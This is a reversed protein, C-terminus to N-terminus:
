NTGSKRFIAVVTRLMLFCYFGFSSHQIAFYEYRIKRRIELSDRGSVQALGSIGPHHQFIKLKVREANLYSESPLSPRYGFFVMDGRIINFIQPLEDLSWRRLLRGGRIYEVGVNLRDSPLLPTDVAMTRFKFMSFPHGKFGVRKSVFLIPRGSVFLIWGSILVLVPVLLIAVVIGLFRTM